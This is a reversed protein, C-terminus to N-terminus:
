KVVVAATTPTEQSYTEFLLLRSNTTKLEGRWHTHRRGRALRSSSYVSSGSHRMEEIPWRGGRGAGSSSSNSILGLPRIEPTPKAKKERVKSDPVQDSQELQRQTKGATATPKVWMIFLRFEDGM